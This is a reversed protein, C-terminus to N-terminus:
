RSKLRLRASRDRERDRKGKIHTLVAIGDSARALREVREFTAVFTHTIVTNSESAQVVVVIVVVAVCYM